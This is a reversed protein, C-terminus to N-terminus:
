AYKLNKKFYKQLKKINSLSENDCERTVKLNFKM